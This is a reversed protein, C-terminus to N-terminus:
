SHLPRSEHFSLIVARYPSVPQSLGVTHSHTIIIYHLGTM